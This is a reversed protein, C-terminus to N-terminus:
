AARTSSNAPTSQASKLVDIRWSCPSTFPNAFVPLGEAYATTGDDIHHLLSNRPEQVSRHSVTCPVM